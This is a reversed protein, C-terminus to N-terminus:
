ELYNILVSYLVVQNHTVDCKQHYLLAFITESLIIIAVLSLHPYLMSAYQVTPLQFKPWSLPMITLNIGVHSNDPNSSLRGICAPKTLTWINDNQSGEVRDFVFTWPLYLLSVKQLHDAEEDFHMSFPSYDEVSFGLSHMMADMKM